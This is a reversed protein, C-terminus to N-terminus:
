GSQTVELSTRVADAANADMLVTTRNKPAITEDLAGEPTRDPTYLCSSYGCGLVQLREKEIGMAVLLDRVALAREESFARCSAEEGASSTTGCILLTFGPDSEMYAVVSQLAERAAAKDVLTTSDPQFAISVEDFVLMAGDQFYTGTAEESLDQGDIMKHKLGSVIEATDMTSVPQAFDYAGNLPLDNRFTVSQADMTEFLAEYFSRLIGKEKDSLPPQDGATDGCCYFIVDIGKLDWDLAGTLAEVSAEVDLAYLPTEVLNILGQTSIGSLYLALIQRQGEAPQSHLARVALSTAAAIDVQPDDPAANNLQAALDAGMSAYARQMMTDSYGKDRLDPITGEVIVHPNGDALIFSYAAGPCTPLLALEQINTNLPSNNNTIGAVLALQYPETSTTNNQLEEVSVSANEQGSAAQSVGSCSTSLLLVLVLGLCLISRKLGKM